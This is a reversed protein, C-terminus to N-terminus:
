LYGKLTNKDWEEKHYQKLKDNENDAYVLISQYLERLQKLYNIATEEFGTNNVRAPKFGEFRINSTDSNNKLFNIYELLMDTFAIITQYFNEHKDPSEEHKHKYKIHGIFNIADEICYAPISESCDRNMFSAIGYGDVSELFETLMKKIPPYSQHESLSTNKLTKKDKNTCAVLITEFIDSCLEGIDDNDIASDNAHLENIIKMQTDYSFTNIYDAFRSKDLHKVIERANKKSLSRSGDFIKQLTNPDLKSMPNYEDEEEAKKDEESAPEEMIQNTIEIIFDSKTNKGGIYPYLIKAYDSFNLILVEQVKDANTRKHGM